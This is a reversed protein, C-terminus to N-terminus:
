PQDKLARIGTAADSFEGYSGYEQNEPWGVQELNECVKAARELTENQILVATDCLWDLYIGDAISSMQYDSAVQKALRVVTDRDM